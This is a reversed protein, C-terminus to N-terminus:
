EEGDKLTLSLVASLDEIKYPKTLVGRFGYKAYDAMVASNSYGSSVIAKVEPDIKVLQKLIEKAGVGGPITLDLIVAGFPEKRRKAEEYMAVAEAGNAALKVTYGLHTLIEETVKRVEEEDDMLLIKACGTGPLPRSLEPEIAVVAEALAPLYIKFVTGVGPTSDVTLYGDHRKIITFSTTLGLGTGTTKTTFYPDFIRPLNEPLIGMGEDEITIKLYNGKPIPLVIKDSLSLNELYIKITGGEPMAQIANITLNNIVQGIQAEDINAPWIEAGFFYEAKVNSGLVAFNVTDQILKPLATIKLVPLGGKTFAM